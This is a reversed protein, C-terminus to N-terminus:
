DLVLDVVQEAEPSKEIVPLRLRKVWEAKRLGCRTTAHHYPELQLLRIFNQESARVSENRARMKKARGGTCHLNSFRPRPQRACCFAGPSM